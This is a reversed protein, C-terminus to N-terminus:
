LMDAMWIRDAYERIAQDASFRSMGAVNRVAKQAWVTPELWV